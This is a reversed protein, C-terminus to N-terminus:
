AAVPRDGSSVWRDLGAVRGADAVQECREEEQDADAEGDQPETFRQDQTETVRPATPPAIEHHEHRDGEGEEGTGEDARAELPPTGAFGAGPTWLVLRVRLSM